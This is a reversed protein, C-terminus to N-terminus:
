RSLEAGFFPVYPRNWSLYVVHPAQTSVTRAGCAGIGDNRIKEPAGHSNVPHQPKQIRLRM